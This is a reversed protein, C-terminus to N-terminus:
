RSIRTPIRGNAPIGTVGSPVGLTDHKPAHPVNGSPHSGSGTSLVIAVIVAVTSAIAAGAIARPRRTAKRHGGGQRPREEDAQPDLTSATSTPEAAEDALAGDAESVLPAKRTHCLSCWEATPQMRAGCQRCRLDSM